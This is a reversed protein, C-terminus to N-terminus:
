LCGHSFVEDVLQSIITNQGSLHDGSHAQVECQEWKFENAALAGVTPLGKQVTAM